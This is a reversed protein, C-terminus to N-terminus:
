KILTLRRTAVYSGAKLRCFYIGTNMVFPNWVTRFIGASLRDSVLTAVTNGRVDFVSLDVDSPLPISFEIRTSANFPNPFNQSLSFEKPLVDEEVKMVVTNAPLVAQEFSASKSKGGTCSVAVSLVFKQTQDTSNKPANWLPNQSSTDSFVGGTATWRYILAHNRSDSMTVSCNVRGGSRVPNPSGCAASAISLSDEVPNVKIEYFSSVSAVIDLNYSSDTRIPYCFARASLFYSATQDSANMPATWAPNQATSDTFQGGTASWRYNLAHKCGDVATVRCNVRKGSEVPNTDGVPGETFTIIDNKSLICQFYCASAKRGETCTVEVELGSEQLYDSTNDYAYWIPTRSRDDSFYGKYSNDVWKYRLAHGLRDEATVGCQVQGGSEVANPSGFPGSVIKVVDNDPVTDPMSIRWIGHGDVAAFVDHDVVALSTILRRQLPLGKGCEKWDAKSVPSLFLGKDTGVYFTDNNVTMSSINRWTFDNLWVYPFNL